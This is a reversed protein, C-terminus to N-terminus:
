QITVERRTGTGYHFNKTVPSELAMEVQSDFYSSEEGMNLYTRYGYGGNEISFFSIYGGEDTVAKVVAGSGSGALDKVEVTFESSPSFGGETDTVENYYYSLSGSYNIYGTGVEKGNLLFSVENEVDPIYAANRQMSFVTKITEIRPSEEGDEEGEVYHVAIKQDLKLTPLSINYWIGNKSAPLNVSYEGNTGVSTVIPEYEINDSYLGFSIETGAPVFEREDNTVDTEITAVGEVTTVNSSNKPLMYITSSLQGVRGEAYLTENGKVRFYTDSEIRLSVSGLKVQPFMAFGDANSTATLTEGGQILKVIIGEMNATSDFSEATADILEVTYAVSQQADLLDKETFEDECATMMLAGAMLSLLVKKM